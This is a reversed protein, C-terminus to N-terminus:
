QGFADKVSDVAREVANKTNDVAKQTRAADEEARREITARDRKAKREVFSGDNDTAREVKRANKNATEEVKDAADRIFNKARGADESAKGQIRDGADASAIVIPNAMAATNALFGGHWVVAFASLCFLTTALWRGVTSLKKTFYNLQM